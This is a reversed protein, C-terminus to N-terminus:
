ENRLTLDIKAFTTDAQQVLATLRYEHDDIVQWTLQYDLLPTENPQIIHLFKVNKVQHILYERKFLHSFLDVAIQIACVGPTIPHGPFHGQFIPHEKNLRIVYLASQDQINKSVIDFFSHLLM